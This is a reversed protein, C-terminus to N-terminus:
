INDYFITTLIVFLFGMFIEDEKPMLPIVCVISNEDFIIINDPFILDFHLTSVNRERNREEIRSPATRSARPM